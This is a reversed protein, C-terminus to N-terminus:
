LNARSDVAFCGNVAQKDLVSGGFAVGAWHGIFTTLWCVSQFGLTDPGTYLQQYGTLWFGMDTFDLGQCVFLMLGTFTALGLWVVTKDDDAIESQSPTGESLAMTQSDDLHNLSNM